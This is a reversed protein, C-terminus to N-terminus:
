RDSPPFTSEAPFDLEPQDRAPESPLERTNDFPRFSSPDAPQDFESGTEPVPLIDSEENIANLMRSATRAAESDPFEEAITELAQKAENLRREAKLEVIRRETQEIEQQLAEEQMLEAKEKALQLYRARLSDAPSVPEQVAPTLDPTPFSVLPAPRANEDQSRGVTAQVVIIGVLVVSATLRLKM